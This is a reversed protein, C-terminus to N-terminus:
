VVSRRLMPPYLVPDHPAVHSDLRFLEAPRGTGSGGRRGTPELFGATGTVKRHFNRPDIDVGWVAEYVSRLEAITFEEPCFSAALPSYEIKSRAREIGDLLIQAHDFALDCFQSDVPHQGRQAHPDSTRLQSVPYWAATAADGGGHPIRDFPALLLFAISLVPGRPDRGIPGYTKLQELHGPPLMGTEEALERQAAQTLSEGKLVFGGPLALRGVFPELGREVLLVHLEGDTVTLAVVDVTVPLLGATSPVQAVESVQIESAGLGDQAGHKGPHNHHM